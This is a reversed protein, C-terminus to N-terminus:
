SISLPLDEVWLMRKSHRSNALAKHFKGDATVMKGDITEALALYLCDYLSCQTELALAYAPRFLRQDAHQQVPFHHIEKLMIEGEKQRLEDRRIKKSLVNGLELLMFAPAHLHYNAQYLRIAAESYIEPIFWKMTVSADVVYRSM